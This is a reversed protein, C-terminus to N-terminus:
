ESKQIDYSLGQSDAQSGSIAIFGPFGNISGLTFKPCAVMIYAGQCCIAVCHLLHAPTSMSPHLSQIHVHYPVTYTVTVSADTKFHKGRM